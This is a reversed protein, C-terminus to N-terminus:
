FAWTQEDLANGCKLNEDPVGLKALRTKAYALVEEDLEIGYCRKPDAGAIICAALLNGSGLCPDIIDKDALQDFKEIMKITLEPCTFFQGLKQRTKKDRGLYQENAQAAHEDVIAKKIDDSLKM